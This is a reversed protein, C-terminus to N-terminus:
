GTASRAFTLLLEHASSRVCDTAFIDRGKQRERDILRYIEAFHRDAKPLGIMIWLGMANKNQWPRLLSEAVIDLMSHKPNSNTSYGSWTVKLLGLEVGRCALKEIPRSGAGWIPARRSM